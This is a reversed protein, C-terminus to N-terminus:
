HKVSADLAIIYCQNNQLYEIHSELTPGSAAIFIQTVNPQQIDAISLANEVMTKNTILNKAKSFKQNLFETNLEQEIRDKLISADDDCLVLESPLACFPKTVKTLTHWTNLSVKDNNLWDSHDLYSLSLLLVDINLIIIHISKVNNSQLLEIICDGLGIGYVTVSAKNKLHKTQIVAEAKRDISSTLQINNISLTQEKVTVDMPISEHNAITQYVLPWRQQIINANKNLLSETM